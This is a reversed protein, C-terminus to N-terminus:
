SVPPMPQTPGGPLGQEMGGQPPPVAPATGIQLTPEGVMEANNQLQGLGGSEKVGDLEKQRDAVPKAIQLQANELTLILHEDMVKKTKKSAYKQFLKSNKFENHLIYEEMSNEDSRIPPTVGFMIQDHEADVADLQFKEKAVVPFVEQLEKQLGLNKLQVKVLEPFNMDSFIKEILQPNVQALTGITQFVTQLFQTIKETQDKKLEEDKQAPIVEIEEGEFMESTKENLTFEGSAGYGKKFKVESSDTDQVVDYGKIKVKNYRTVKGDEYPESLENKVFSAIQNTLYYETDYVNRKTAGDIAKNMNQMKAMTQTALQNPNSYLSTTDDSTVSIRSNEITQILQMVQGSIGGGLQLQMIHDQLKGAGVGKVNFIAGPRIEHEEANFSIDGDIIIPKQVQMMADDIMLNLIKERFLNYPLNIEIEGIANLSDIRYTNRYHHFPLQKHKYPIGDESVFIEKGGTAYNRQEDNVIDWYELVTVFENASTLESAEHTTTWSDAGWINANDWTTAEVGEINWKKKAAIDKFTEFHYIKRRFVYPCGNKGTHDQLKKYGPAPFFHRWDVQEATLGSYQVYEKGDKNKRRWTFPSLFLAENGFATASAIVSQKVADLNSIIKEHEVAAQLGIAGDSTGKARAEPLIQLFENFRRLVYGMTEPFRYAGDGEEGKILHREFEYLWLYAKYIRDLDDQKTEWCDTWRKQVKNTDM